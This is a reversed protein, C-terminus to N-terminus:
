LFKKCEKKKSHPEIAYHWDKLHYPIYMQDCIKAAALVKGLRKKTSENGMAYFENIPFNGQTNVWIEFCFNSNIKPVEKYKVHEILRNKQLEHLTNIPNNIGMGIEKYRMQFKDRIKIEEPNSIDTFFKYYKKEEEKVEYEWCSMEDTTYDWGDSKAALGAISKIDPHIEKFIKMYDIVQKRLKQPDKKKCEVILFKGLGDTFVLDGKGKDTRGQVVEWEYDYAYKYKRFQPTKEGLNRIVDQVILFEPNNDCNRNNIYNRITKDRNILDKKLIM